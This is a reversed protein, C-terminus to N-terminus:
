NPKCAGVGRKMGLAAGIAFMLWCGVFTVLIWKWWATGCWSSWDRRRTRRCGGLTEEDTPGEILMEEPTNPSTQADRNSPSDFPREGRSPLTPPGPSADEPNDPSLPLGPLLTRGDELTRNAGRGICVDAQQAEIEAPTLSFKRRSLDSSLVGRGGELVAEAKGFHKWFNSPTHIATVPTKPQYSSTPSQSPVTEVPVDGVAGFSSSFPNTITGNFSGDNGAEMSSGDPRTCDWGSTPTRQGEGEEEGDDEVEKDEDNDFIEV